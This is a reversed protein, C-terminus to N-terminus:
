KSDPLREPELGARFDLVENFTPLFQNLAVYLHLLRMNSIVLCSACVQSSRREGRQGQGGTANQLQHCTAKCLPRPQASVQEVLVTLGSVTHFTSKDGGRKEECRCSHGGVPLDKRVSAQLTFAPQFACELICRCHRSLHRNRSSVNAKAQSPPQFRLELSPHRSVSSRCPLM